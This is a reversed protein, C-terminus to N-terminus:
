RSDPDISCFAFDPNTGSTWHCSHFSATDKPDYLGLNNSNATTTLCDGHASNNYYEWNTHPPNITVAYLSLNPFVLIDFTQLRMPSPKYIRIIKYGDANVCLRETDSTHPSQSCLTKNSRELFFTAFDHKWNFCEAQELASNTIVLRERTTCRTM